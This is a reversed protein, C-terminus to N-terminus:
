LNWTLFNRHECRFYDFRKGKGVTSFGLRLAASCWKPRDVSSDTYSRFQFNWLCSVFGGKKRVKTLLSSINRLFVGGCIDGVSQFFDLVILRCLFNQPSMLHKPFLSPAWRFPHFPKYKACFLISSRWHMAQGRWDWCLWIGPSWRERM